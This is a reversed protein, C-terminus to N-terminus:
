DLWWSHSFRSSCRMAACIKEPEVEGRYVDITYGLAQFTYFSIGAPLAFSFPLEWASAGMKELVANINQLIFGAYKFFVLVGLQFFISGAAIWKARRGARKCRGLLLGSIWSVVTCCAILLLHKVNWCMYFYYSAALLWLTKLKKPIIFYVLVVVPFFVFIGAFSVADRKEGKRKVRERRMM